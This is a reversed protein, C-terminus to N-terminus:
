DIQCGRLPLNVQFLVQLAFHIVTKKLIPGMRRGAARGSLREGHGERGVHGRVHMFRGLIHNCLDVAARGPRLGDGVLIKCIIM